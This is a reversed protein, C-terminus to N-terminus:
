EAGAAASRREAAPRLAVTFTVDLEDKVSVTGGAARVPKMGFESQKFRTKGEVKWGGSRREAEFAVDLPRTRGHLTLRGHITGRVRGEAKGAGADVSVADSRYTVAPYRAADLVEPGATQRDVKARDGSSLGPERDRLSDAAVFVDVTARAPDGDPVEATARWRLAHLEHDHGFVAFLGSRHVHVVVDGDAPLAEVTTDKGAPTAATAALALLVLGRARVSASATEARRRVTARM